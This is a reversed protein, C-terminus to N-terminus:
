PASLNPPGIAIVERVETGPGCSPEGDSPSFAYGPASLSYTVRIVICSSGGTPGFVIVQGACDTKEESILTTALNMNTVKVTVDPIPRRSSDLVKLILTSAQASNIMVLGLLWAGGVINFITKRLCLKKM